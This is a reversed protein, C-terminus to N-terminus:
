RVQCTLFGARPDMSSSSRRSCRRAEPVRQQNMLLNEAFLKTYMGHFEEFARLLIAAVLIGEDEIKGKEALYPILDQLIRDHYVYPRTPFYPDFRLVHQASTMFIANMLMPNTLALKPIVEKFVSEPSTLDLSEAVKDGWFRFLYAEIPDSIPWTALTSSDFAIERHPSPIDSDWNASIPEDLSSAPSTHRQM